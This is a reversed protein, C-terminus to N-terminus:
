ARTPGGQCGSLTVTLFHGMVLDYEFGERHNGATEQMKPKM